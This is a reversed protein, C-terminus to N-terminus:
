DVTVCKHPSYKGIRSQKIENTAIGLVSFVEVIIHVIIDMMEAPTTQPIVTYIELRRFFKEISEFIDLLADQGARVGKVAQFVYTNCHGARLQYSYVSFPTRRIRCLDPELISIGAV